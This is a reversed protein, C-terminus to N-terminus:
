ACGAKGGGCSGGASQDIVTIERPMKLGFRAAARPWFDPATGLTTLYNGVMVSNIGTKFIDILQDGFVVEKGGAAMLNRDALMFRATALTVFGEDASLPKLHGLKTGEIPNLFNLPVMDPELFRVQELFEIRQGKNEGMGFIGGSCLGMGSKKIYRITDMREDFSHTTCINDFFSRATELNHGYVKVGAQKLRDACRQNELIGLNVDPRVGGTEVLKEVANAVMELQAGEKVGWWAAVLSLAQAGNAAASHAAQVIEEDPLWKTKEYTTAPVGSAQACYSCNESCNGAKVNLISCCKLTRGIHADRIRQAGAFLAAGAASGADIDLLARAQAATAQEGTAIAEALATVAEADTTLAQPDLIATPM